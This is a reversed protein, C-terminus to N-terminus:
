QESQMSFRYGVGRVTEIYDMPIKERIHTLHVVVTGAGADGLSEMGWVNDFIDKKSHVVNPKSALYYLLDFEKATLFIETNKFFVRRSLPRIVLDRYEIDVGKDQTTGKIRDYRAIHAKVRAVLEAPDFPKGIYDDAGIGLGRVKDISSVKATVMLIPIDKEKRLARCIEFGDMDPLMIDLIALDFEENMARNLGNVGNNEIIVEFGDLELYDREIEAINKEDEVILIRKM